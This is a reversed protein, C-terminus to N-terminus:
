NGLSVGVGGGGVSVSAGGVGVSIGGSDVDVSVGGGNENGVGVSIGGGTSGGTSGGTNGGGGGNAPANVAGRIRKGTKKDERRTKFVKLIVDHKIEGTSRSVVIERLHVKNQALIKVRGLMTSSMSVVRYGNRELVAIVDTYNQRAMYVRETPADRLGSAAAHAPGSASVSMALAFGTCIIAVRTHDKTTM